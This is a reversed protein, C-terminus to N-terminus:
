LEFYERIEKRIEFVKKKLNGEFINQNESESFNQSYFKLILSKKIIKNTHLLYIVQKVDANYNILMLELLNFLKTHNEIDCSQIREKFLIIFEEPNLYKMEEQPVEQLTEKNEIITDDDKYINKLDEFHKKIFKIVKDDKLLNSEGCALCEINLENDKLKYITEPNRCKCLVYKEIFKYLGEIIKENSFSGKIELIEDEGKITCSTNFYSLLFTKIFIIPRNLSKSINKINLIQTNGKIKIIIPIPMKYRYFKDSNIPDINM